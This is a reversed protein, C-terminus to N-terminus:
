KFLEKPQMISLGAVTVYMAKELSSPPQLKRLDLNQWPDHMRVPLRLTDTLFTTLGPMNAGGGMTIVQGIKSKSGSREEQYRIVRRIEKALEELAPKLEEVIEAQKKSKGIGYKTKIVHAEERTVKLRKAILESFRDGGIPVTGTVVVTKDHYTIDTSMSGFDILVAAVDQNHDHREFLRSVALISTEIAVTELGLMQSLQQYSDVLKKPAAVSLIEIGTETREIVSHDMYLDDVPMPIYQDAELRVAEDIEDDNMQPLAITRTFTRSAPISLAVRHTNIEGIINKDFLEVAAKAISEHEVIVGDKLASSDFSGVGYGIVSHHKSTTDVQMAKISSFGIDLGFLPKDKYFHSSNM